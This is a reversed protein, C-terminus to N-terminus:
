RPLVFFFFPLYNYDDGDNDDDDDAIKLIKGVDIPIESINKFFFM